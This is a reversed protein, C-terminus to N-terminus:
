EDVRLPPLGARQVARWLVIVRTSTGDVSPRAHEDRGKEEHQCEVREDEETLDGNGNRDVYLVDGDLVLWVCTKAEPGFVSLCYKPKGKYKPEKKITRDIKSLDAALALSPSFLLL